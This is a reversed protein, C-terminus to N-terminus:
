PNRLQSVEVRGDYVSIVKDFAIADTERHAVVVLISQPDLHEQINRFIVRETEVDINSTAEDLIVLRPQRLFLRALLLRQRQGLSLNEGNAGVPANLGEPLSQVFEWLCSQHLATCIADDSVSGKYDVAERISGNFVHLENSSYFLYPRLRDFDLAARGDESAMELKGKAPPYFGVLMKLLTSKGQGSPGQVLIRDGAQITVSAGEIVPAEDYAFAGGSLEIRTPPASVPPPCELAYGELQGLMATVKDISPLLERLNMWETQIADVYSRLRSFVVLLVLFVSAEVNFWVIGVFIILMLFFTTFSVSLVAIKERTLAKSVRWGRSRHITKGMKHITASELGDFKIREYGNLLEHVERVVDKEVKVKTSGIDKLISFYRRNIVVSVTGLVLALLVLFPAYWISALALILISIANSVINLISFFSASVSGIENFAVSAVEDRDVKLAAWGPIALFRTFLTRIYDVYVGYKIAALQRVRLYRGAALGLISVLGVALLLFPLQADPVLLPWGTRTSLQALASAAQEPSLLLYLLSISFVELAPLILVLALFVAVRLKHQKLIGVFLSLKMIEVRVEKYSIDSKKRVGPLVM